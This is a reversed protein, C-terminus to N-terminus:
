NTAGSFYQLPAELRGYRITGPQVKFNAGLAQGIESAMTIQLVISFIFLSPCPRIM